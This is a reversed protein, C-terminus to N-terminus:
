TKQQLHSTNIKRAVQTNKVLRSVKEYSLILPKLFHVGHNESIVVVFLTFIVKSFKKVEANMSHIRFTSM